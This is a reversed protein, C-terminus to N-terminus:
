RQERLDKSWYSAMRFVLTFRRLLRHAFGCCRYKWQNTTQFMKGMYQSYYGWSVKMNKLITLVVLWNLIYWIYQQSFQTAGEMESENENNREFIVLNASSFGWELCLGYICCPNLVHILYTSNQNIGNQLALHGWSWGPYAPVRTRWSRAKLRRNAQLCIMSLTDDAGDFISAENMEFFVNVMYITDNEVHNAMM